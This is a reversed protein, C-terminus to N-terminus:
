VRKVEYYSNMTRSHLPKFPRKGDVQFFEMAEHTEVDILRDLLWREMQEQTWRGMKPVKFYHGTHYTLGREPHYTDYGTTTVIFNLDRGVVDLKFNWGPRYVLVGVLEELKV